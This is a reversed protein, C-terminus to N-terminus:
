PTSRRRWGLRRVLAEVASDIAGFDDDEWQQPYYVHGPVRTRFAELSARLVASGSRNVVYQAYSRAWLEVRDLLRDVHAQDVASSSAARLAIFDAVARSRAVALRWDALEPDAASAFRGAPDSGSLDLLHGVEHLAAFVRHGGTVEISIAIPESSIPSLTMQGRRIPEGRRSPSLRGIRLPIAPLDGDGHVRAIVGVAERLDDHVIGPPVLLARGIPIGVPGEGLKGDDGVREPVDTAGTM